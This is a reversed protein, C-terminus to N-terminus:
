EANHAIGNLIYFVCPLAVGNGWMAYMKSDSYPNKLWKIIQKETKPKTSKGLAKRYAEFIDAWKKIDEDTPEETEIIELEELEELEEIEPTVIEPEEPDTPEETTVEAYVADAKLDDNVATQKDIEVEEDTQDVWKDFTYGEKEPAEPLLDGIVKGAEIEFALEEQEVGDVFFQVTYFVPDPEDESSVEEEAPSDEYVETTQEELAPAEPMAEEEQAPAEEAPENVGTKIAPQDDRVSHHEEEVPEPAPQEEVVASVEEAPAEVVEAVAEETVDTPVEEDANLHVPLTNVLLLVSALVTLTKKFFKEM